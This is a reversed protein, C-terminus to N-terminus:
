CPAHIYSEPVELCFHVVNFRSEETFFKGNGEEHVFPPNVRPITQGGQGNLVVTSLSELGTM